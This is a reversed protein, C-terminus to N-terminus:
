KMYENLDIVAVTQYNAVIKCQMTTKDVVACHSYTGLIQNSKPEENDLSIYCFWNDDSANIHKEQCYPNNDKFWHSVGDNDKLYKNVAHMIDINPRNKEYEAMMSEIESTNDSEREAYKSDDSNSKGSTTFGKIKSKLNIDSVPVEVNIAGAVGAGVEYADFIIILSDKTLNFKVNSYDYDLLANKYFAAANDSEHGYKNTKLAIEEYIKDEPNSFVDKLSLIRRNNLDVCFSYKGTSAGNSMYVRNSVIGSVSLYGELSLDYEYNGFVSIQYESDTAIYSLIKQSVNEDLFSQLEKDSTKFIPYKLSLSTINTWEDKIDSDSLEKTAVTLVDDLNKSKVKTLSIVGWKGGQKVWAKGNHFPRVDEFTGYDVAINGNSYLYATKGDKKAAIFGETPLYPLKISGNDIQYNVSWEVHGDWLDVFSRQSEFSELDSAVVEGNYGFLTWQESNSLAIIDNFLHMYAKDYEIPVVIRDKNAIGYKDSVNKVSVGDFDAYQVVVNYTAPDAGNKFCVGNLDSYFSNSENLWYFKFGGGFGPYGFNDKEININGLGSSITVNHTKGYTAGDNFGVITSATIFEFRDFEEDLLANGDYGYVTWKDGIKVIACEDLPSVEGEELTVDKNDSVIVEAAELFPEVAWYYKVPNDTAVKIVDANENNGSGDSVGNVVETSDTDNNISEVNTSSNVENDCASLGIVFLLVFIM